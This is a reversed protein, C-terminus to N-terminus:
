TFSPCISIFSHSVILMIRQAKSVRLGSYEKLLKTHNLIDVACRVTESYHSWRGFDMFAELCVAAM